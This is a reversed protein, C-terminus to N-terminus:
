MYGRANMYKKLRASKKLVGQEYVDKVLIGNGPSVVYVVRRNKNEFTYRVGNRFNGAELGIFGDVIEVTVLWGNRIYRYDAYVPYLFMFRDSANEIFLGGYNMYWSEGSVVGNAVVQSIMGTGYKEIKSLSLKEQNGDLNGYLWYNSAHLPFLDKHLVYNMRIRDDVSFLADLKLKGDQWAAVKKGNEILREYESETIGEFRTACGCLLIVWFLVVLKMCDGIEIGAM